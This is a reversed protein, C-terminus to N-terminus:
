NPIKTMQTRPIKREKTKKTMEGDSKLIKCKKIARGDCVSVCNFLYINKKNHSPSHSYLECSLSKHRAAISDFQFKINVISIFSTCFFHCDVHRYTSSYSCGLLARLCIYTWLWLLLILSLCFLTM